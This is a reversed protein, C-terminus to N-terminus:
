GEFKLESSGYIGNRTYDINKFEVTKVVNCLDEEYNACISFITNTHVFINFSKLYACFKFYIEKFTYIIDSEFM